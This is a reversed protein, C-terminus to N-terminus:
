LSAVVGVPEEAVVRDGGVPVARRVAEDDDPDPQNMQRYSTEIGFRKRYTTKVWDVRRDVSRPDQAGAQRQPVENQWAAFSKPTSPSCPMSNPRSPRRTRRMARMKPPFM